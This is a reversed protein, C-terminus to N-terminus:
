SRTASCMRNALRLVAGANGIDGVARDAGPEFPGACRDATAIHQDRSLRDCEAVRDDGIVLPLESPGIPKPV